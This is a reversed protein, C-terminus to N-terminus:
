LELPLQCMWKNFELKLAANCTRGDNIIGTRGNPDTINEAKTVVLMNIRLQVMFGSVKDFIGLQMMKWM